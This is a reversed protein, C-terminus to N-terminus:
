STTLVESLEVAIPSVKKSRCVQKPLIQLLHDSRLGSPGPALGGKLSQLVPKIDVEVNEVPPPEMPSGNAEPFLERLTGIALLCAKGPLGMDAFLCARRLTAEKRAKYVRPRREWSSSVQDWLEKLKGERWLVLRRTM